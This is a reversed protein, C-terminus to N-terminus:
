QIVGDKPQADAPLLGVGNLAAAFRSVFHAAVAEAVVDAEVRTFPRVTFGAPKGDRMVSIGLFERGQTDLSKRHQRLAKGDVEEVAFNGVGDASIALVLPCVAAIADLEEVITM